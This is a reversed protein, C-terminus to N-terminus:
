QKIELVTIGNRKKFYIDFNEPIIKITNNNQITELETLNFVRANIFHQNYKTYHDNDLEGVIVAYHAPIKLKFGFKTTDLDTLEQKTDWDIENSSNLKYLTPQNSFIPFGNEVETIKYNIITETQTTNSIVFYEQWSCSTLCVMSAIVCITILIKLM